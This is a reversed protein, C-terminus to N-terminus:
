LMCTHMYGCLSCVAAGGRVAFLSKFPAVKQPETTPKLPKSLGVPHEHAVTKLPHPPPHAAVWCFLPGERRQWADSM